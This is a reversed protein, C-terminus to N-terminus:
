GCKPCQWKGPRVEQLESRCDLCVGPMPRDPWGDDQRMGQYLRYMQNVVAFQLGIAALWLLELALALIIILEEM